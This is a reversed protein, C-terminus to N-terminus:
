KNNLLRPPTLSLSSVAGLLVYRVTCSHMGIPCEELVSCIGPMTEM